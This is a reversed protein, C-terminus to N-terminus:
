QHTDLKTNGRRAAWPHSAGAEARTERASDGIGGISGFDDDALERVDMRSVRAHSSPSNPSSRDVEGSQGLNPFKAAAPRGGFSPCAADAM